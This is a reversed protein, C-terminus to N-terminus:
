RKERAALRKQLGCGQRVADDLAKHLMNHIANVAMSSLGEELKKAYMIIKDESGSALLRGDSSFTVARVRNTHGYCARLCRGAEIDWLRVLQDVSGSAFLSM